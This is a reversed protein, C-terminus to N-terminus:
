TTVAPDPPNNPQPEPQSQTQPKLHRRPLGCLFRGADTFALEADAFATRYDPYYSRFTASGGYNQARHFLRDFVEPPLNCEHMRGFHVSGRQWLVCYRADDEAFAPSPRRGRVKTRVLPVRKYVELEREWRSTSPFTIVAPFGRDWKEPRCWGADAGFGILRYAWANGNQNTGTTNNLLLTKTNIAALNVEKSVIGIGMRTSVTKIPPFRVDEISQRIFAAFAQLLPEGSEDYWDALVLRPTDDDPEACVSRLLALEEAHLTTALTTM